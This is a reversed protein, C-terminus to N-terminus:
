ETLYRVLSPNARLVDLILPSLRRVVREEGASDMGPDEQLGALDCCAHLLEHVVTEKEMTDAMTPDITITLASSDCEGLKGEGSSASLADIAAKDAVVKYTHVGVKVTRPPKM